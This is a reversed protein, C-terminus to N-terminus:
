ETNRYAGSIAKECVGYDHSKPRLKGCPDITVGTNSTGDENTLTLGDPTPNTLTVPLAGSDRVDICPVAETAGFTNTLECTSVKGRIQIPCVHYYGPKSDCEYMAARADHSAGITLLPISPRPQGVTNLYGDQVSEFLVQVDGERGYAGHIDVLTGNAALTPGDIMFDEFAIGRYSQQAAMAATTALAFFASMWARKM